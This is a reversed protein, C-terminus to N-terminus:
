EIVTYTNSLEALTYSTCNWGAHALNAVDGQTDVTSMARFKLNHIQQVWGDIGTDKLRVVRVNNTQAKDVGIGLYHDFSGSIKTRITVTIERSGNSNYYNSADPLELWCKTEILPDPSRQAAFPFTSATGSFFFDLFIEDYENDGSTLDIDVAHTAPVTPETNIYQYYMRSTKSRYHVSNVYGASFPAVATGIRADTGAVSITNSVVNTLYASLFPTGVDGITSLGTLTTFTDGSHHTAIVAYFKSSETGLFGTNDVKPRITDAGASMTVSETVFADSTWNHTYLMRFPVAAVGIDSIGTTTIINDTVSLLATAVAESANLALFYGQRYRKTVSGIDTVETIGPSFSRAGAAGEFYLADTGLLIQMAGNHYRISGYDAFVVESAGLEDVKGVNIGTEILSVSHLGNSVSLQNPVTVSFNFGGVSLITAADASYPLTLVGEKIRIASSYVFGGGTARRGILLERVATNSEEIVVHPCIDSSPTEKNWFLQHGFTGFRVSGTTAYSLLIADSVGFSFGNRLVGASDRAYLSLGHTTDSGLRLPASNTPTIASGYAFDSGVLVNFGIAPSTISNLGSYANIVGKSHLDGGVAVLSSTLVKGAFKIAATVNSRVGELTYTNDEAFYASPNPARGSSAAIALVSSINSGYNSRAWITYTGTTASSSTSKHFALASHGALAEDDYDSTPNTLMLVDFRRIDNLSTSGYRLQGVNSYTVSGGPDNATYEPILGLGVGENGMFVFAPANGFSHWTDERSTARIIGKDNDLIYKQTRVSVDTSEAPVGVVVRAAFITNTAAHARLYVSLWDPTTGFRLYLNDVLVDLAASSGVSARIMGKLNEPLAAGAYFGFRVIGYSPYGTQDADIFVNAKTGDGVRFSKFDGTNALVYPERGKRFATPAMRAPFSVPNNWNPTLDRVRGKVNLRVNFQTSLPVNVNVNVYLTQGANITLFGAADVQSNAAPNLTAGSAANWGINTITVPSEVGGIIPALGDGFLDEISFYQCASSRGAGDIGQRGVYIIAPFDGFSEPTLAVVNTGDAVKQILVHSVVALGDAVLPNTQSLGAGVGVANTLAARESAALVRVPDGETVFKNASSPTGYSGALAAKQQATVHINNNSLHENLAAIENAYAGFAVFAGSAADWRYWTPVGAIGVAALAIDNNKQQTPATAPYESQLATLNTFAGLYSDRSVVSVSDREAYSVLNSFAPGSSLSLDVTGFLILYDKNPDANYTIQTHVVWALTPAAPMNYKAHLCLYSKQNGPVVISTPDSDVIVMGDFSAARFPNITISNTTGNAIVNGGFFVGKSVLKEFRLNLDATSDLNEYSFVARLSM